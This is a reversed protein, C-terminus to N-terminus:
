GDGLSYWVPNRGPGPTEETYRVIAGADELLSLADGIDRRRIKYRLNKHLNKHSIKGGAEDIIRRIHNAHEQSETESMYLGAGRAMTRTSWEAVAIGWRMAEVTVAPRTQNESLAYVTALRLANEATRGYFHRSPDRSFDTIRAVKALYDRYLRSAEQDSWPIMEPKFVFSTDGPKTCQSGSLHEGKGGAHISFLRRLIAPPVGDFLNATREADKPRSYIPIMLFRNLTGGEIDADKISDWFQGPTSFGLISMAPAYILQSPNTVSGSTSIIEYNKGWLGRLTKIIGREHGAARKSQIRALTEGLEDMCCLSLPNRKVHDYVSSQSMFEDPGICGALKMQSLIRNACNIHHDKGWGSEALCVVYFHTGAYTPGAWYRGALMGISTIATALALERSPRLSTSCIWDIMDELLGGPHTLHPPLAGVDASPNFENIPDGDKPPEEFVEGTEKDYLAGDSRRILSEVIKEGLRMAEEDDGYGDRDQPGAHPNRYGASFGNEFTKRCQDPGDKWLGNAQCAAKCRDWAEAKTIFGGAAYRGYRYAAVDNLHNNRGGEVIGAFDADIGAFTSEKWAALRADNVPSQHAAAAGANIHVHEQARRERERQAEGKFAEVRALLREITQPAERIDLPTGEVHQNTITLYRDVTYIEVRAKDSKISKPLKIRAFLRIGKGSPSVETYTEALNVIEQIWPEFEGTDPDRCSDIDIGTLDDDWALCFGVGALNDKRQRERAMLYSGWTAPTSHSALSGTMPNVPLKDPKAAGARMVYKWAVWQHRARLEDIASIFENAWEQANFNKGLYAM